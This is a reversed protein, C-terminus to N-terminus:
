EIMLVLSILNWHWGMDSLEYVGIFVLELPDWHKGGQSWPCYVYVHVCVLQCVYICVCIFLIKYFYIVLNFFANPM